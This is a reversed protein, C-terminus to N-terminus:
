YIIYFIKIDFLWRGWGTAWCSFVEIDVFFFRFFADKESEELQPPRSSTTFSFLSALGPIVKKLKEM